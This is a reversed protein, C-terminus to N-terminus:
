FFFSSCGPFFFLVSYFRLNVSIRTAVFGAKVLSQNLGGKHVGSKSAQFHGFSGAGHVVVFSSSDLFGHGEFDDINCEIESRGPRKSWDMGNIQQSGSGAFMSERLQSSVIELNEENIKELENKCTIAAGGLKVICRIPKTLNFTTKDEMKAM